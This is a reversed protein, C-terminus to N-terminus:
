RIYLHSNDYVRQVEGHIISKLTSLIDQFEKPQYFGNNYENLIVIERQLDNLPFIREKQLEAIYNLFHYKKM